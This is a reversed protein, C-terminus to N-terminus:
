DLHECLIASRSPQQLSRIARLEIQRVREKTRGIHKATETLTHPGSTDDGLGWRFEMVTRERIPLTQLVKILDERLESSEAKESPCPLLLRERRNESYEILGALPVEKTQEVTEAFTNLSVTARLENPFLSQYSEGTLKEIAAKFFNFKEISWHSNPQSPPCWRMNSLKCANSASIGVTKAFDAVSGCKRIARLIAAHKFKTQATIPFTNM